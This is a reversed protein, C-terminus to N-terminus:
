DPFLAVLRKLDDGSAAVPEGGALAELVAALEAPTARWFEDPRWGLLAGAVGALRAAAESFVGSM